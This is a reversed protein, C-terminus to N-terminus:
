FYEHIAMVPIHSQLVLRQSRSENFIKNLLHHKKPVVNLLDIENLEAFECLSQEITTCTILHYKPHLAIM